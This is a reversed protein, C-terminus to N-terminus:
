QLTIIPGFRRPQTPCANTPPPSRIASTTTTTPQTRRNPLNDEVLLNPVIQAMYTQRLRLSSRQTPLSKPNTKGHEDILIDQLETLTYDEADGDDYVITYWNKNDKHAVSGEFTGQDGFTKRVRRHILPDTSYTNNVPTTTPLNNTSSEKITNRAEDLTTPMDFIANGLTSHPIPAEYPHPSTEVPPTKFVVSKDEENYTPAYESKIEPSPNSASFKLAEVHLREFYPKTPRGPIIIKTAGNGNDNSGIAIGFENIVDYTAGERGMVNTATVPCGFPFRFHSADPQQSTVVEHPSQKNTLSNPISNHTKTWFALAYDWSSAGLTYQDTLIAGIAKIM